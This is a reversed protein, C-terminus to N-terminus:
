IRSYLYKSIHTMEELHYYIISHNNEREREGERWGGGREERISPCSGVKSLHKYVICFINRGITKWWYCTLM